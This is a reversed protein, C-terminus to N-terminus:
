RRHARVLAFFRDEYEEFLGARKLTACLDDLRRANMAAAAFQRDIERRLEAQRRDGESRIGSRRLERVNAGTSHQVVDVMLKLLCVEWPQEVGVVVAALPDQKAKVVDRVRAAVAELEGTLIEENIQEKSVAFGYRLIMLESENRRLWEAYARAEDGFGELLHELFQHPAVIEPRAARVRGERVRIQDASDLLQTVLHYNLVTTGFTELGATPALLIETHNVAYWFDFRSPDSM